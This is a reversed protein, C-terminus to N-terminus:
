RNTAKIGSSHEGSSAHKQHRGGELLGCGLSCPYFFVVIFSCLSLSLFILVCVQVDLGATFAREGAGTLVVVRVDPDHSLKKFILGLNQWM